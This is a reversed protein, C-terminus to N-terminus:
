LEYVSELYCVVARCGQVDGNPCEGGRKLFEVLVM